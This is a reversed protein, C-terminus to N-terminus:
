HNPDVSPVQAMGEAVINLMSRQLLGNSSVVARMAPLFANGQFDTNVGGAEHVMLQGAATDWPNLNMEWFGDYRGAAVYCLDLAASGDRRVGQAALIFRQFLAFHLRSEERVTYPFGTVLLAKEVDDARSVSLRTKRPGRLLWAGRGEAAYYMERLYPAYVVGVRVRGEIELAISVCFFPFGHAYNTTGDLPDIIWRFAKGTQAIDTEETVYDHGPFKARLTKLVLRECQKDIETVINIKGKFSIKQEKGFHRLQYEGAAFAARQATKLYSQLSLRRKM